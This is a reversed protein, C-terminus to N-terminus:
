RRTRRRSVLGLLALGFLVISSPEPVASVAARPGIEYGGAAFATVFDNSDFDLDGNWDGTAWGSNGAVSDEYQGASFVAVFDASDFQGDLNADGFYTQKLEAVWVARDAYDIQGDKTLDYTLDQGGFAAAQLDLDGADLQGNRNFDGPSVGSLTQYYAYLTGALEDGVYPALISPTIPSSYNTAWVGFDALDVDTDGDFDAYSWKRYEHSGGYNAAFVSFDALDVDNDLQTDGLLVLPTGGIGGQGSILRFDTAFDILGDDTLELDVLSIAHSRSTARRPIRM